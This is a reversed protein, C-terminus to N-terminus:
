AASAATAAFGFQNNLKKMCVIKNQIEIFAKNHQMAEDHQHSLMLSQILSNLVIAMGNLVAPFHVSGCQKAVVFAKVYLSHSSRFLHVAIAQYKRSHHNVSSTGNIAGGNSRRRLLSSCSRHLQQSPSSLVDGSKGSWGSRLTGSSAVLSMCVFAIGLNHLIISAELDLSTTESESVQCDGDSDLDILDEIRIPNLTIQTTMTNCNEVSDNSTCSRVEGELFYVPDITTLVIKCARPRALRELALQYKQSSFNDDYDDKSTRDNKREPLQRYRRLAYDVTAAADKLTDLAQGYCHKDLM